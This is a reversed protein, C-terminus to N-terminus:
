AAADRGAPDAASTDLESYIRELDDVIEARRAAYAQEDLRGARRERELAALSSL